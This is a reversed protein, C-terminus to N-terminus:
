FFFLFRNMNRHSPMMYRRTVKFIRHSPSSFFRVFFFNVNALYVSSELAHTRTHALCTHHSSVSIISHYMVQLSPHCGLKLLTEVSCLHGKNVAIHLPTQRRKNRVNLDAGAKSLIEIVAAEDGFSAHHVARDGDKDELELDCGQEILLEVVQKHGNQCAAQLATHGAFIGNVIRTIDSKNLRCIDGCRKLDGNAAAKVLEEVLGGSVHSEYLKELLARLGEGTLSPFSGDASAVKTVNAPNYVFQNDCVDIKLDNDPFIQIIRGIKGLTDTMADIWEGHDVQLGKVREIDTSIQVFDGVSLLSAAAVDANSIAAIAHTGPSVTDVYTNRTYTANSTVQSDSLANTSSQLNSASSNSAEGDVTGDANVKTLVAPNFTWKPSNVRDGYRVVVDNDSDIAIVEGTNALCELMADAWGGHGRQLAQVTELDLDIRVLDGLDFTHSPAHLEGLPPLHDKFVSFGKGDSYVKLDAMGEFGVRYVNKFGSDWQVYAASRPATALWDQIDLLKGRKGSGGDQDDWQWDVGRNVRAGPFLGRLQLKKSKKRPELLIPDSRPITIRYHRHKCCRKENHYCISCLDSNLCEACLWRTGYIPTQHCSDCETNEHKIGSPASDVIRLDYIGSCRSNKNLGLSSCFFM